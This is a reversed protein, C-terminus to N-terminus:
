FMPGVPCRRLVFFREAIFSPVRCQYPEMSFPKQKEMRDTVAFLKAMYTDKFARPAIMMNYLHAETHLNFWSLSNGFDYRIEFIAQLFLDWDPPPGSQTPWARYGAGREM